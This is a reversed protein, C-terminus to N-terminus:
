DAVFTFICNKSYPNVLDDIEMQLQKEQQQFLAIEQEKNDILKRLNKNQFELDNEEEFKSYYTSPYLTSPPNVRGSNSSQDYQIQAIRSQSQDLYTSEALNFAPRPDQNGGGTGM